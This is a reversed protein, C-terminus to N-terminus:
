DKLIEAKLAELEGVLLLKEQRTLGAFHGSTVKGGHLVTVVAIASVEALRAHSYARNAIRRIAEQEPLERRRETIDEVKRM